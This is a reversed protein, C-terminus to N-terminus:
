NGFYYSFAFFQKVQKTTHIILYLPGQNYSLLFYAGCKSSRHNDCRIEEAEAFCM